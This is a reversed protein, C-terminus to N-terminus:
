RPLVSSARGTFFRGRLPDRKSRVSAMGPPTVCYASSETGEIAVQVQTVGRTMRFSVFTAPARVIPTAFNEAM